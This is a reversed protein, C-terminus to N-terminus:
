EAQILFVKYQIGAMSVPTPQYNAVRVSVENVASVWSAVVSYETEDGINTLFVPDGVVAGSVSIKILGVDNAPILTTGNVLTTLTITSLFGSVLKADTASQWKVVKNADTMLISNALGSSKIDVNLNTLAAGTANTLSIIDPTATTVDQGLLGTITAPVWSVGDFKLIQNAIPAVSSIAVGQIKVVAPAPYTGSLDGSATGTSGTGSGANAAYLAYPVSLLQSAGASVFSSGGAPDVEVKLYKLGSGWTISSFNNTSSAAGASGIAVNYLGLSSTTVKRTESYQSTGADSGDLVSLRLTIVTSAVPTSNANRLVGQYNFQQPAQASADLMLCTLVVSLLFLLKTNMYLKNGKIILLIEIKFRLKLLDYSILTLM